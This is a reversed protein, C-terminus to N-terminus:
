QISFPSFYPWLKATHDCLSIHKQVPARMCNKGTSRRLVVSARRMRLVRSNQSCRAVWSPTWPEACLAPLLWRGALAARRSPQIATWIALPELAAARCRGRLQRCFLHM